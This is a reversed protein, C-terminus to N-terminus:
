LLLDSLRKIQSLKLDEITLRYTVPFSAIIKKVGNITTGCQINIKAKFVDMPEAFKKGDPTTKEIMELTRQTIVVRSTTATLDENKCIGCMENGEFSMKARSSLSTKKAHLVLSTGSQLLKKIVIIAREQMEEKTLKREPEM